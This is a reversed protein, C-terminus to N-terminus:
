PLMIQSRYFSSWSDNILYRNFESVNPEGRLRVHKHLCLHWLLLLRNPIKWGFNKRDSHEAPSNTLILVNTVISVHHKLRPGYMHGKRTKISCLIPYFSIANSHVLGATAAFSAMCLTPLISILMMFFQLYGNSIKGSITAFIGLGSMAEFIFELVTLFWRFIRNYEEVKYRIREYNVIFLWLNFASGAWSKTKLPLTALLELQKFRFMINFTSVVFVELLLFGTSSVLVTWIITQILWFPYQIYHSVHSCDETSQCTQIIAMLFIMGAGATILIVFYKYLWNMTKLMFRITTLNQLTLGHPGNSDKMFELDSIFLLKHHIFEYNILIMRMLITGTSYGVIYMHVLFQTIPGLVELCDGLYFNVDIKDSLIIILASRIGMLAFFLLWIVQISIKKRDPIGKSINSFTTSIFGGSILYNELRGVPGDTRTSMKELLQIFVPISNTCVIKKKVSSHILFISQNNLWFLCFTWDHIFVENIHNLPAPSQHLPLGALCLVIWSIKLFKVM